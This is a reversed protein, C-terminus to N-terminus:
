MARRESCPMDLAKGGGYTRVDGRDLGQILVIDGPELHPVMSYSSVSVMPPWVGAYFYFAAMVAALMTLSFTFDKILDCMKPHRRPFGKIRGQAM